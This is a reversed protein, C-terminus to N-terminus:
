AGRQLVREVLAAADAETRAEAIIRAIPETNSARLHVWGNEFDIRIGDSEDIHESDFAKRLQQMADELGDRGGIDAIDISQKIMAYAPVDTIIDSLPRDKRRLLDLVIAMGCLSDRVWGVSPAIVGGNGEGGIVCENKKMVGAVNAEGVATRHVCGGVSAALDDIMRSTSLNAAASQGEELMAMAALVLTYEEGIYNGTEDVIALRDADPDQAFGIAAEHQRVAECLKQLNEEKPEPPHAFAGTPTGNLHIVECGLLELLRRGGVCGAGNVSDLVVRFGIERLPMPDILGLIRAIHTDHGADNASCQGDDASTPERDDHFRRIIDQAASANPALGDHDLCKFGNWPSPNHSATVVLGGDASLAGIMVGATPTAVVGLDIVDCGCDKLAGRAANSLSEGSPRTDRALCLTPARGSQDHLHSAFAFAWRAAFAETMSKGVIGRAGSVSLMLPADTMTHLDSHM